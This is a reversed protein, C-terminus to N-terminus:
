GSHQVVTPAATDQVDALLGMASGGPAAPEKQFVADLLRRFAEFDIAMAVRELPDGMSSLRSLKNDETFFEIQEM